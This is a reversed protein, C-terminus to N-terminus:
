APPKQMLKNHLKMRAKGEERKNKRTLRRREKRGPSKKM